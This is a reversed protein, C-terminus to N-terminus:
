IVHTTSNNPDNGQLLLTLVHRVDLNNWAIVAGVVDGVPGRHPRHWLQNSHKVGDFLADILGGNELTRCGHLAQLVEMLLILLESGTLSGGPSCLRGLLRRWLRHIQGVDVQGRDRDGVLRNNLQRLWHDFRGTDGLTEQLYSLMVMYQQYYLTTYM